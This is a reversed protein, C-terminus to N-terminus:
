AVATEASTIMESVHIPIDWFMTVPRGFADTTPWFVNPKNKAKIALQSAVIKNVYMVCGEHGGPINFYMEILKDEDVVNAAAGSAGNINALRQICRDDRVAMGLNFVFQTVWKYLRAPATTTILELGKDNKEIGLTKSNQPYILFVSNPGWKVIYASTCNTASGATYVNDPTLSLGNYRTAIGDIRKPYTGRDGYWFATEITQAIGELHLLDENYRFQRPNPALKVLLEDIESRDELYGIPETVQSTQGASPSVGENVDRWTGSPIAEDRTHVHTDKRNAEVFTADGIVPALKALTMAIDLTQKNNTRKALEVLTLQASVDVETAVQKRRL